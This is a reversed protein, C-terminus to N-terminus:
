PPPATPHLRTAATENAPAHAMMWALLDAFTQERGVDRFLEHRGTPYIRLTKDTSTAEDVFRRATALDAVEDEGGFLCLLPLNFRAASREVEEQAATAGSYWRPTAVRANLPDTQSQAVMEPDASMCADRLGTAVRLSPWLHNCVRGVIRRSVPIPKAPRLWPSSLICGALNAGRLRGRIAATAVVLGGHSHGLLFLPGHNTRTVPDLALFADVDELYQNWHRVYGRPGSSRGQGRQDFGHCAVGREALWRMVETYRGIHDGYGHVIVLRAWTTVQPAPQVSRRYIAARGSLDITSGDEIWREGAAQVDPTNIEGSVQQM